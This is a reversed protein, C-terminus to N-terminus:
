VEEKHGLVIFSALLISVIVSVGLMILSDYIKDFVVVSIGINAFQERVWSSSSFYSFIVFSIGFAILADVISLRFLVASRLWVPAGFLGMINMRENHKFQWIRLEKFILLITVLLISVALVSIVNKFLLLLKYTTDHTNSFTEVKTIYPYKLLQKKIKQLQAPTPYTKLKFKYFKPLTVKLLQINKKSIGTNLKKIVSDPSLQEVSALINIKNLLKKNKLIEQSVVVLSYNKALNEKYADISRDVITFIQLSFLISVLAIVLSIHNKFSKM